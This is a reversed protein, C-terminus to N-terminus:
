CDLDYKNVPGHIPTTKSRFTIIIGTYTNHVIYGSRVISGFSGSSGCADNM